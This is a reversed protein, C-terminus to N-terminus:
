MKMWFDCGWLQRAILGQPQLRWVEFLYNSARRSHLSTLKLARQVQSECTWSIQKKLVVGWRAEGLWVATKPTFNFIKSQKAASVDSRMGRFSLSACCTPKTQILWQLAFKLSPAKETSQKIVARSSSIFAEFSDYSFSRLRRQHSLHHHHM